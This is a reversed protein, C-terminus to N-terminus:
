TYEMSLPHVVLQVDQITAYGKTITELQVHPTHLHWIQGLHEFMRIMQFAQKIIKNGEAEYIHQMKTPEDM